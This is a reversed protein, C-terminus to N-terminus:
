PEPLGRQLVVAAIAVGAAGMAIGAVALGTGSKHRQATQARVLEIVGLVIGVVGLPACAMGVFGCLAAGIAWNSAGIDARARRACAECYDRGEVAESCVGCCFSGCRECVQLAAKEPHRACSAGTPLM